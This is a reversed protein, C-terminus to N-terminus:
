DLALATLRAVLRRERDLDPEEALWRRDVVHLGEHVHQGDELIPRTAAGPERPDARLARGARLQEAQGAVDRSRPQVLHGEPRREALQELEALANRVAARDPRDQKAPGRTHEDSRVHELRRQRELARAGDPRREAGAD